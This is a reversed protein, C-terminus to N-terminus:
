SREEGPAPNRDGPHDLRTGAREQAACEDAFEKLWNLAPGLKLQVFARSAPRKRAIRAMDAAAPMAGLQDLGARLFGWLKMDVLHNEVAAARKGRKSIPTACYEKRKEAPMKSRILEALRPIAIGLTGDMIGAIEEPTGSAVVRKGSHAYHHTIKLVDAIKDILPLKGKRAIAARGAIIARQNHNFRALWEDDFTRGDLILKAAIDAMSDTLAEKVVIRVM